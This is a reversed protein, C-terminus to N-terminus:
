LSGLHATSARRGLITLPIHFIARSKVCNKLKSELAQRHNTFFQLREILKNWSLMLVINVLDIALNGALAERTLPKFVKLWASCGLILIM